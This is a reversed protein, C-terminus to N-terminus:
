YRISAQVTATLECVRGQPVQQGNDASTYAVFQTMTTGNIWAVRCSNGLTIGADSRMYTEFADHIDWAFDSATIQAEEGGAVYVSIVCDFEATRERSRNTGLTPQANPLRGQTGVSLIAGPQYQGPPGYCVLVPQGDPGEMAGVSAAAADILGDACGKISQAM